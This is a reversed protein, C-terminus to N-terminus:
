VLSPRSEAEPDITEEEPGDRQNVREYEAFILLNKYSPTTGLLAWMASFEDLRLCNDATVASAVNIM